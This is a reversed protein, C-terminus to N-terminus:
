GALRRLEDALARLCRDIRDFTASFVAAEQEFPDRIARKRIPVPDLDGLVLVRGAAVGMARVRQAQGPDMVVVLEAAALSDATVVRSRHAGLDIGRQRATQLALDPSPRGPGIFGASDVALGPDAALGRFAEAAYPSRCINGLCVFLVSQPRRRLLRRAKRGRLPHLLRDPAHRLFSAAAHGRQLLQQSWGASRSAPAM